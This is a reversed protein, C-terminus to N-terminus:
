FFFFFLFFYATRFVPKNRRGRGGGGWKKIVEFNIKQKMDGKLGLKIQVISNKHTLVSQQYVLLIHGVSFFIKKKGFIFM